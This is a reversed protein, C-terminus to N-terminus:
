PLGKGHSELPIAPYAAPAARVHLRIPIAYRLCRSLWGQVLPALLTALDSIVMRKKRLRNVASAIPSIRTAAASCTRVYPMEEEKRFVSVWYKTHTQKTAANSPKPNLLVFNPPIPAEAQTAASPMRPTHIRPALSAEGRSSRPLATRDTIGCIRGAISDRIGRSVVAIASVHSTMVCAEESSPTRTCVQSILRSRFTVTLSANTRLMTHTKIMHSLEAHIPQNAPCRFAIADKNGDMAKSAAIM